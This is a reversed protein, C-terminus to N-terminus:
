NWEKRRRIVLIVSITIMIGCLFYLYGMYSRIYIDTMRFCKDCKNYKKYKELAKNSRFIVKYYNDEEECIANIKNESVLISQSLSNINKLSQYINPNIGRADIIGVIKMEKDDIKITKNLIQDSCKDITRMGKEDIIKEECYRKTVVIENLKEPRRGFLLNNNYIAEYSQVILENKLCGIHKKEISIIRKPDDEIEQYAYITRNMLKNDEIYIKIRLCITIILVIITAFIFLKPIKKMKIKM